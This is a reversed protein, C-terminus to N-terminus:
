GCRHLELLRVFPVGSAIEEDSWQAWAVRELMKQRDGIRPKQISEIGPSAADRGIWQPFDYVVPCGAVLAKLGAGSAWVVCVGAGAVDDVLPLPPRDLGPHRRVRVRSMDVGVGRMRRQVDAVWNRPMAVGPPGIGRQPLLLIDGTEGDGRWPTLEIDLLPARPTDGICWCGAGNHQDLALALTKRAGRMPLYGNEVVMVALGRRQYVGASVHGLGYRNWIVLVDGPRPETSPRNTVDFGCRSLGDSIAEHRYEPRSRVLSCAIPRRM